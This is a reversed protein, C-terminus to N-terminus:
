PARVTIENQSVSEAWEQDHQLLHMAPLYKKDAALTVLKVALICVDSVKESRLQCELGFQFVFKLELQQIQATILALIRPIFEIFKVPENSFKETAKKLAAVDGLEAKRIDICLSHAAFYYDLGHYDLQNIERLRATSCLVLLDYLQHHVYLYFEGIPDLTSPDGNFQISEFYDTLLDLLDSLAKGRLYDTGGGVAIECFQYLTNIPTFISVNNHITLIPFVQQMRAHLRKISFLPLRLSDPPIDIGTRIQNLFHYTKERVEDRFSFFGPQTARARQSQELMCELIAVCSRRRRLCRTVYEVLEAVSKPLRLVQNAVTVSVGNKQSIASALNLFKIILRHASDERVKFAAALNSVDSFWKLHTCQLIATIEAENLNEFKAKLLLRAFQQRQQSAQMAQENDDYRFDTTQLFLTTLHFAYESPNNNFIASLFLVSSSQLKFIQDIDRIKWIQTQNIPLIRNTKEQAIESAELDLQIGHLNLDHTSVRIRSLINSSTVPFSILPKLLFDEINLSLDTERKSYSFKVQQSFLAAILILMAQKMFEVLGDDCAGAVFCLEVERGNDTSRNKQTV